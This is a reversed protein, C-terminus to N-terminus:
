AAGGANRRAVMADAIKFACEAIVKNEDYGDRQMRSLGKCFEKDSFIANLAAAAFYDRLTMGTYPRQAGSLDERVGPFAPGGDNISKPSSGPVLQSTPIDSISL